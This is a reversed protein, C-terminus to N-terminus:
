DGRQICRLLIQTRGQARKPQAIIPKPPFMITRVATVIVASSASPPHM